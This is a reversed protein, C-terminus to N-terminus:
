SRIALLWSRGSAPANGEARTSTQACEAHFEAVGDVPTALARATADDGPLVIRLASTAGKEFDRSFASAVWRFFSRDIPHVDEVVASRSRPEWTIRFAFRGARDRQSPTPRWDADARARISDSLARLLPDSAAAGALSVAVPTCAEAKPALARTCAIAVTSALLLYLRASM